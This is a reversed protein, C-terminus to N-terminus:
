ALSLFLEQRSAVIKSAARDPAGSVAALQAVVEQCDRGNEIMAMVGALQGHARPLRRLVPGAAQDHLKM